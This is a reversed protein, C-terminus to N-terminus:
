SPFKAIVLPKYLTRSSCPVIIRFLIKRSPCLAKRGSKKLILEIHSQKKRSSLDMLPCFCLSSKFILLRVQLYEESNSRSDPNSKTLLAHNCCKKLEIVINLFTGTSGKAGKRLANYNKTLIWKYYQKQISTMEVRLIQEM